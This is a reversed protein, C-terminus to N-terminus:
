GNDKGGNKIENFLGRAYFRIGEKPEYNPYVKKYNYEMKEFTDVNITVDTNAMLWMLAITASRSHGQNCFIAVKRNNGLEDNIFNLASTLVEPKYFKPNDVDIINLAILNIEPRYAILYETENKNMNGTYGIYDSGDLKAYMQHFTKACLCLSFNHNEQLNNFDEQSGVFLNKYIEKM